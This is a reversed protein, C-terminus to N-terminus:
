SQLALNLIAHARIRTPPVTLSIMLAKRFASAPAAASALDSAIFSIRYPRWTCFRSHATESGFAAACRTPFEGLDPMGSAAAGNPHDELWCRIAYTSRAM